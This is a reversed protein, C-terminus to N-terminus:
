GRVDRSSIMWVTVVNIWERSVNVLFCKRILQMITCDQDIEVIKHFEEKPWQHNDISPKHKYLKSRHTHTHSRTWINGVNSVCVCVCLWRIHKHKHTHSMFSPLHSNIQDFKIKWNPMRNIRFPSNQIQGFTPFMSCKFPIFMCECTIIIFPEEKTNHRTHTHTQTDM